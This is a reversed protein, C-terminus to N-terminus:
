QRIDYRWRRQRGIYSNKTKERVLSTINKPLMYLVNKPPTNTTACLGAWWHPDGNVEIFYLGPEDLDSINFYEIGLQKLERKLRTGSSVLWFDNSVDKSLSKCNPYDLDITNDFYIKM